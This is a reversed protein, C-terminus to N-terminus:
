GAVAAMGEAKPLLTHPVPVRHLRCLPPWGGGGWMAANWPELHVALMLWTKLPALRKSVGTSLAEWNQVTFIGPLLRNTTPQLAPGHSPPGPLQSVM